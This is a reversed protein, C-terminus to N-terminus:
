KCTMKWGIRTARSLLCKDRQVGSLGDQSEVEQEWADLWPLFM